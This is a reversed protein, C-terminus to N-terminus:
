EKHKLKCLEETNKLKEGMIGQEVEMKDVKKDLEKLDQTNEKISHFIMKLQRHYIYIVLGVVTSVFIGGVKLIIQLNEM